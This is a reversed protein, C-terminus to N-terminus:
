PVVMRLPFGIGNHYVPHSVGDFDTQEGVKLLQGFADKNQKPKIVSGEALCRIVGKYVRHPHSFASEFKPRKSVLRYVSKEPEFEGEKPVCRSLLVVTDGGEPQLSALWGEAPKGEPEFHGKGVSRNGGLGSHKWFRLVPELPFGDPCRLLFFLGVRGGFFHETDFYLLGEAASTLVRDVATHQIDMQQWWHKPLSGIESSSLLCGGKVEVEGSLVKELLGQANWEGKTANAFLTESIYAAKGIAKARKMAELLKVRSSGAVKAVTEADPNLTLPKPLFHLPPDTDVFPLASSIFWEPPDSQCRSLWQSLTREGEVLRIAWCIAGFLTESSLWVRVSSKPRLYIAWTPM